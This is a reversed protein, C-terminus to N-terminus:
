CKLHKPRCKLGRRSLREWNKTDSGAQKEILAFKVHGLAVALIVHNPPESRACNGRTLGDWLSSYKTLITMM